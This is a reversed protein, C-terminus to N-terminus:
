QKMQHINNHTETSHKAARALFANNSKSRKLKHEIDQRAAGLSSLTATSENTTKM